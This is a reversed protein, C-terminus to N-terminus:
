SIMYLQMNHSIYESHFTVLGFEGATRIRRVASFSSKM